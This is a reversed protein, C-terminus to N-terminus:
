GALRDELSAVREILSELAAAAAGVDDGLRVVDLVAADM